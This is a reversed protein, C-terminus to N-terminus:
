KINKPKKGNETAYKITALAKMSFEEVAHIDDGNTLKEYHAVRKPCDVSSHSGSWYVRYAATCKCAM